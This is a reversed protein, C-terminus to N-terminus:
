VRQTSIYEKFGTPEYGSYKEINEVGIKYLDEPYNLESNTKAQHDIISRAIAEAFGKQM